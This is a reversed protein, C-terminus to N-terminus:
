FGLICLISNLWSTFGSFGPSNKLKEIWINDIRDVMGSKKDFEKFFQENSLLASGCHYKLPLVEKM